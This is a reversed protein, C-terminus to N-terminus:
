RSNRMWALVVLLLVASCAIASIKDYSAVVTGIRIAGIGFIKPLAKVRPGFVWLLCQAGILSIALTAILSRLPFNPKDYLPLSALAAILTGCAMGVLIGAGAVVFGNQSIYQSALWAGYGSVAFTFGQAMNIMGLSSWIISIGIALLGYIAALSVTTIALYILDIHM